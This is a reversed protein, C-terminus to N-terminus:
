TGILFVKKVEAAATAATQTVWYLSKLSLNTLREIVSFKKIKGECYIDNVQFYPESKLIIGQGCIKFAKVFHTKEKAILTLIDPPHEIEM